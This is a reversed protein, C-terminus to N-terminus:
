KLIRELKNKRKNLQYEKSQEYQGIIDLYNFWSSSMYKEHEIIYFGNDLIMRKNNTNWRNGVQKSIIVYDFYICKKRVNQIIYSKSHNNFDYFIFRRKETTYPKRNTVIEKEIIEM